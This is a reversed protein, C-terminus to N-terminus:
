VCGSWLQHAPGLSCLFRVLCCCWEAADLGHVGRNTAMVITDVVAVAVAVLVEQEMSLLLVLSSLCQPIIGEEEEGPLEV